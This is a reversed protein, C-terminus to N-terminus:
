NHLLAATQTKYAPMKYCFHHLIPNYHYYMYSLCNVKKHCHFVKLCESLVCGGSTCSLFRVASIGATYVNAAQPYLLGTGFVSHSLLSWHSFLTLWHKKYKTDANTHPHQRGSPSRRLILGDPKQDLLILIVPFAKGSYLSQLIDGQRKTRRHCHFHLVPRGTNGPPTRPPSKM